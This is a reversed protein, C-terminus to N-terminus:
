CHMQDIYSNVSNQKSRVVQLPHAALKVIDPIDHHRTTHKMHSLFFGSVLAIVCLFFFLQVIIQIKKETESIIKDPAFM